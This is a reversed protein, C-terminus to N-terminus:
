AFPNVIQLQQNIFLANQMDETYINTPQRHPGPDEHVGSKHTCLLWKSPSSEYVPLNYECM